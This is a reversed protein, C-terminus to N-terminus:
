FLAILRSPQFNIYFFILFGKPKPKTFGSGTEEPNTFGLCLSLFFGLGATLSNKPVPCFIGLIAALIDLPFRKIIRVM